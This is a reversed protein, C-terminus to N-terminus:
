SIYIYIYIYLYIDRDIMFICLYVFIINYISLVIYVLNVDFCLVRIHPDCDIIMANSFEM